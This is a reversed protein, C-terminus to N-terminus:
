TQKKNEIDKKRINSFEAKPIEKEGKSINREM